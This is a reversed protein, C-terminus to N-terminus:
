NSYKHAQFYDTLLHAEGVTNSKLNILLQEEPFAALVESLTPMAGIFKGRFPFTKGGDATFGYGIDLSKLYAVNQKRVVSKGDIRRDLTWDHFVIFEGDTTPHTDIEVIDAGLDFAAKISALTNEQFDHIPTDIINATCNM